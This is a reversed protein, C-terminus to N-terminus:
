IIADYPVCKMVDLSLEIQDEDQSWQVSCPRNFIASSPQAWSPFSRILRRSPPGIFAWPNVFIAVKARPCIDM